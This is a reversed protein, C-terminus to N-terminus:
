SLIGEAKEGLIVDRTIDLPLKFTHFAEPSILKTFDISKLAIGEYSYHILEPKYIGGIVQNAEAYRDVVALDNTLDCLVISNM